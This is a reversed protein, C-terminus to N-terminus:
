ADPGTDEGARTRADAEVEAALVRAGAAPAPTAPAHTASTGFVM